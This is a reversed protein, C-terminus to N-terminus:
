RGILALIVVIILGVWGVNPRGGSMVANAVGPFGYVFAYVFVIASRGIGSELMSAVFLLIGGALWGVTGIHFSGRMLSAQNAPTITLGRMIRDGQIGHYLAIVIALVGAIQLALNQNIM